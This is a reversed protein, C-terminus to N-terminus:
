QVRDPGERRRWMRETNRELMRRRSHIIEGIRKEESDKGQEEERM